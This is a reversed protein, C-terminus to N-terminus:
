QGRKEPLRDTRDPDIDDLSINRLGAVEQLLDANELKLKRITRRFAIEHSMTVIFWVVAGVVFAQFLLFVLHVNHPAGSDSVRVEVWTAGNLTVFWTVAILFVLFLLTKLIWVAEV